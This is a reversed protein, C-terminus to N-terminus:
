SFDKKLGKPKKLMPRNIGVVQPSIKLVSVQKLPVSGERKFCPFFPVNVGGPYSFFSELDLYIVNVYTGSGIIAVKRFICITGHEMLYHGDNGTGHEMLYHGDNSTGHEM